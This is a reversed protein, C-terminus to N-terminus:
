DLHLRADTILKKWRALDAEILRGLREPPRAILEAGERELREKVDPQTLARSSLGLALSFYGLAKTLSQTTGGNSETHM